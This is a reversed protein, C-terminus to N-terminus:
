DAATTLRIPTGCQAMRLRARAHRVQAAMGQILKSAERLTGELMNVTNKLSVM